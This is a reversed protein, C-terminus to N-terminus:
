VRELYKCVSWIFDVDERTLVKEHTFHTKLHNAMRMHDNMKSDIGFFLEATHHRKDAYKFQSRECTRGDVTHECLTYGEGDDSYEAEVIADCAPCEVTLEKSM